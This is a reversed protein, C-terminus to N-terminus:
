EVPKIIGADIYAQRTQRAHGMNHERRKASQSKVHHVGGAKKGAGKELFEGKYSLHAVAGPAAQKLLSIASLVGMGAVDGKKYNEVRRM